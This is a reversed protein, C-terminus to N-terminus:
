AAVGFVSALLPQAAEPARVELATGRGDVTLAFAFFSCCASEARALRTVEALDVDPKLAIRVGGDLPTRERVHALVAQWAAIRDGMEAHDLTCAIAPDSEALQVVTMPRDAAAAPEVCACGPGCPGHTEAASFAQRAEQLQAIFAVLEAVRRQATTIKGDILERLPAQVEACDEDFATLLTAIEDLSCGLGKARAIFRLRDLARDDYQRYGNDARGASALLGLRDYYRLTSTALGTRRAVDTISLSM